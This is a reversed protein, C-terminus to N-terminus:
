FEKGKAPSRTPNRAPTLIGGVCSLGLWSVCVFFLGTLIGAMLDPTMYVYTDDVYILRREVSSPFESHSHEYQTQAQTMDSVSPMLLFGGHGVEHTVHLLDHAAQLQMNADSPSLASSIHILLLTPEQFASPGKLLESLQDIHVEKTMLDKQHQQMCTIMSAPEDAFRFVYPAVSSSLVLNDEVVVQRLFPQYNSIDGDEDVIFLPYVHKGELHLHTNVNSAIDKLSLQKFNYVNKGSFIGEKESWAFFSSCSGMSVVLLLLLLTKYMFHM